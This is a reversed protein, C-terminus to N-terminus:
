LRVDAPEETTRPTELVRRLTAELTVNLTTHPEQDVPEGCHPCRDSADGATGRIRMLSEAARIRDVPDSLTDRVISTLVVQLERSTAIAPGAVQEVKGQLVSLYEIVRVNRLL